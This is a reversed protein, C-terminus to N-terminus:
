WSRWRCRSPTRRAGSRKPSASKSSPNPCGPASMSNGGFARRACIISRRDADRHVLPIGEGVRDGHRGGSRSPLPTVVGARCRRRRRRQRAHSLRDFLDAAQPRPMARGLADDEYVTTMRTAGSRVSGDSGRAAATVGRAPWKTMLPALSGSVDHHGIRCLLLWHLNQHCSRGTRNASPQDRKENIAAMVDHRGRPRRVFQVPQARRPASGTSM